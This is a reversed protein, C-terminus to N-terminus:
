IVGASLSTVFVQSAGVSVYIPFMVSLALAVLIPSFIIVIKGVNTSYVTKLFLVFLQPLGNEKKLENLQEDKTFRTFTSM